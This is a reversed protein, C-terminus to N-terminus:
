YQQEIWFRAGFTADRDIELVKELGEVTSVSIGRAALAKETKQLNDSRLILAYMGENNKTLFNKISRAFPTNDKDVEVLEIVGGSPPTCIVYRVGREADAAPESIELAFKEGYSARALGLDRVAIIVRQIGTLGPSNQESVPRPSTATFSNTPYVRIM